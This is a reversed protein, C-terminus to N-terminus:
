NLAIWEQSIGVQIPREKLQVCKRASKELKLREKSPINEISCKKGFPNQLKLNKRKPKEEIGPTRRSKAQKAKQKRRKLRKGRRIIWNLSKEM